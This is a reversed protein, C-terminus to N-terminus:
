ANKIVSSVFDKDKLKKLDEKAHNIIQKHVELYFLGGKDVPLNHQKVFLAENKYAQVENIARLMIEKYVVRVKETQEFFLFPAVSKRMTNTIIKELKKNAKAKFKTGNFDNSTIQYNDLNNLIRDYVGFSFNGLKLEKNVRERKWLAKQRTDQLAHTLEHVFDCIFEKPKEKLRKFNLIINSQFPSVQDCFAILKPQELFESTTMSNIKINNGPIFKDAADKLVQEAKKKQAPMKQFLEDGVKLVQQEILATGWLKRTLANLM